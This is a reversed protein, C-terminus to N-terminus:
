VDRKGGLMSKLEAALAGPLQGWQSSGIEFVPIARRLMEPVRDDRETIRHLGVLTDEVWVAADLRALPTPSRVSEYAVVELRDAMDLQKLFVSDREGTDVWHGYVDARPFADGKQVMFKLAAKGTFERGFDDIVVHPVFTREEYLHPIAYCVALDGAYITQGPQPRDGAGVILTMWRRYGIRVLWGSLLDHAPTSENV